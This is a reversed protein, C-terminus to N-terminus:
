KKKLSTLESMMVGNSVSKIFGINPAYYTTYVDSSKVTVVNKFTGAPTTLTGNISTIKKKNGLRDMAEWSKFSLFARYFLRVSAM